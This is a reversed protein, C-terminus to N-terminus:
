KPQTGYLHDSDTHINVVEEVGSLAMLCTQKEMLSPIPLLPIRKRTKKPDDKPAWRCQERQPIINKNPNKKQNEKNSNKHHCM